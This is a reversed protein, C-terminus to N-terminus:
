VQRFHLIPQVISSHMTQLAHYVGALGAAPETHGISSKGAALTMPLGTEETPSAGPILVASAAVLEIPDGLNTGTVLSTLQWNQLSSAAALQQILVADSCIHTTFARHSWCSSSAHRSCATVSSLIMDPELRCATNADCFLCVCSELAGLSSVLHKVIVQAM